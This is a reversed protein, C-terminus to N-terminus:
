AALDKTEETAHLLADAEAREEETFAGHEDQYRRLEEALLENRIKRALAEAAYGSLNDTFGRAAEVLEEPLTITIKKTAM